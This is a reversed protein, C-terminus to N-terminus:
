ASDLAADLKTEDWLGRAVCICGYTLLMLLGAKPEYVNCIGAMAGPARSGFLLAFVFSMASIIFLKLAIAAILRAGCLFCAMAGKPVRNTPSLDEDLDVADNQWEVASIYEAGGASSCGLHHLPEVSLPFGGADEQSGAAATRGKARLGKLRLQEVASRLRRMRWGDPRCSFHVVAAFAVEWAVSFIGFWLTAANRPQVLVNFFILFAAVARLGSSVFAAHVVSRQRYIRRNLSETLDGSAGVAAATDFAPHTCITRSAGARALTADEGLDAEFSKGALGMLASGYSACVVPCAAAVTIELNPSPPSGDIRSAATAPVLTAPMAPPRLSCNTRHEESLGRCSSMFAVTPDRHGDEPVACKEAEWGEERYRQGSVSDGEKLPIRSEMRHLSGNGSGVAETDEACEGLNRGHNNITVSNSSSQAPTGTPLRIRECGEGAKPYENPRQSHAPASATATRSQGSSHNQSASDPMHDHHHSASKPMQPPLQQPTRMQTPLGSSSCRPGESKSAARAPLRTPPAFPNAAYVPSVAEMRSETTSPVRRNAHRKDLIEGSQRPQVRGGAFSFPVDADNDVEEAEDEFSACEDEGGNVYGGGSGGEAACREKELILLIPDRPEADAGEVLWNVGESKELHYVQNGVGYRRMIVFSLFDTEYVVRAPYFHSVVSGLADGHTVLIVDRPPFESLMSSSKEKGCAVSKSSTSRPPLRSVKRNTVAEPVAAGHATPSEEERTRSADKLSRTATMLGGYLDGNRLFSAVYRETAMEISEGWAPLRGVVCSKSPIPLKPARSAKIRIPGFVEALTNDIVMSHAAGIGHHQLAEATQLTRLFPSVVLAASRAADKGLHHQLRAALAKIAVVGAESLPPNSEAPADPYSDRREGHRLVVVRQSPYPLATSSIAPM